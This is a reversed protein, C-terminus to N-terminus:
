GKTKGDCSEHEIRKLHDQWCVARGSFECIVGAGGEHCVWEDAEVLTDRLRTVGASDFDRCMQEARKQGSALAELRAESKSVAPEASNSAFLSLPMPRVGAAWSEHITTKKGDLLAQAAGRYAGEPFKSLHERLSTCSGETREAWALREQRTPRQGMGIYGCFDSVAPQGASFTCIKSQLELSNNLVHTFLFASATMLAGWGFRRVLRKTRGQRKPETQGDNKARIAGVLDRFFPNRRGGRWRILDIPYYHSLGSIRRVKDLSVLVLRGERAAEEAVKFLCNHDTRNSRKTLIFIVCNAERAAVLVDKRDVDDETIDSLWRVSLGEQKLADILVEVRDQDHRISAVFVHTM